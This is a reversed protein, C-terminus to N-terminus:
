CIIHIKDYDLYKDLALTKITENRLRKIKRSHLFLKVERRASM